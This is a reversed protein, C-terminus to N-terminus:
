VALGDRVVRIAVLVVIIVVAGIRALNYRGAFWGFTCGLLSSLLIRAISPLDTELALSYFVIVTALGGFVLMAWVKPQEQSGTRAQKASSPPRSTM